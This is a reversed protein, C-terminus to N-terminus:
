AAVATPHEAPFQDARLLVSGPHLKQALVAQEPPLRMAESPFETWGEWGMLGRDSLLVWENM